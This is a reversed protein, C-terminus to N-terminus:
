AAANVSHYHHYPTTKLFSRLVYKGYSPYGIQLASLPRSTSYATTDFQFRDFIDSDAAWKDNAM